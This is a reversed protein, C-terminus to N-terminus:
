SGLVSLRRARRARLRGGLRGAGLRGRGAPGPAARGDRASWVSWSPAPSRTSTPPRRACATACSRTSRAGRGVPDAGPRRAPAGAADRRLRDRARAAGHRRAPSAASSRPSWRPRTRRARCWRGCARRRARRDRRRGVRDARAEHRPRGCASSWGTSRRPACSTPSGTPSWARPAPSSRRACRSSTRPWRGARTSSTSSGTPSARGAARARGLGQGRDGRGPPRHARLPARRHAPVEDRDADSGPAARGGGPARRRPARRPGDPLAGYGLDLLEYVAREAQEALVDKGTIGLDAAGAEVYTPVDSPRM